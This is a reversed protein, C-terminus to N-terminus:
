GILNLIVWIMLEWVSLLGDRHDPIQLIDNNGNNGNNDSDNNYISNCLSLLNANIFDAVTNIDYKVAVYWRKRIIM